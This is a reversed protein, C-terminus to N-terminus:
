VGGPDLRIQDFLLRTAPEPMADFETRLIGECLRYQRLAQAREGRRVYCRMVLRHADERCPDVSLLRLAYHLCQGYDAEAYHTDAQYALVTLHAARLREREVLARLDASDLCLDGRYLATADEFAEAAAASDGAAAHRRGAAVLDDFWVVDSVVGAEPNLRYHGEVHLVAPSGGSAIGLLRHLSYVVSNLAQRALGVDSEPWVTALLDERPVGDRYHIALHALMAQTKGGQRIPVLHGDHLLRFSGLVCVLLSWRRRRTARATGDIEVHM